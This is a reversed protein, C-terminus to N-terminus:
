VGLRDLHCAGGGVYLVMDPLPSFLRRKYLRSDPQHFLDVVWMWLRFGNLLLEHDFGDLAMAPISCSSAGQFELHAPTSEAFRTITPFWILGQELEM